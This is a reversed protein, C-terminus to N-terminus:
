KLIHEAIKIGIFILIFELWNVILCGSLKLFLLSIFLIMLNSIYNSKINWRGGLPPPLHHCM